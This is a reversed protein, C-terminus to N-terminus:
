GYHGDKRFTIDKQKTVPKSPGLKEIIRKVSATVKERWLADRYVERSELKIAILYYSKPKKLILSFWNKLVYSDLQTNKNKKFKGKTESGRLEEARTEEYM